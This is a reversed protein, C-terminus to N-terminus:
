GPWDIMTPEHVMEYAADVVSANVIPIGDHEYRGHGEHIHGCVVLKPRVREIAALLERSGAHETGGPWRPVADGYGYPPQHSMLIDIGAPIKAYIPALEAAPRMFAWDGFTASWPTGWVRSGQLPHNLSHTIPHIPVHVSDDNLIVVRDLSGAGAADASFDCAEGCWDHNGWILIRHRAPQAALWPRFCDDFWRAQKQPVYRAFTRDFVDPCIDGAILLLDCPPISPLHGHLDSVAVIRMISPSERRAVRLPLGSDETQHFLPYLFSLPM